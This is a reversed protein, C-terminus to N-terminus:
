GTVPGKLAQEVHDEIEALTAESFGYLSLLLGDRNKLFFSGSDKDYAGRFNRPTMLTIGTAPSSLEARGLFRSLPNLAETEAAVPEIFLFALFFSWFVRYYMSNKLKM